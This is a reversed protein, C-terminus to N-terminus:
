PSAEIAMALEKRDDFPYKIGSIEQGQEHGKGLIVVTDGAEASAVAYVIAAKRDLIIASPTAVVVDAVMEDLIAAPSESRPNDSTFIAVDALEQLARGMLPRKTRDRDGGCGLVAILRHESDTKLTTLVRRVADPSHAFDVLARFPQGLNVSELRGPAGQLHRLNSAISLPDLGSQVALAIAMIANDLNHDGILPLFGEILIGGAGRLSIEFGGSVENHSLYYWDAKSNSRSVTSIPIQSIELLRVGYPDDINVYGIDAYETTFLKAKAAFYNAMTGHFDLHDQTLNTFAAISFHSGAMRSQELAHSSVEAVLHTVHREAMTAMISQLETAEPTTFTTPYHDLGIDVGLTGIFGAERKELQWLQYLLSSTTTKGNTGTIGVSVLSRLPFDNVWSAIDGARRKPDAIVMMPLKPFEMGAGELDTVVAVAGLEAAKAIFKAGHVKGGPLALFLDGPQVLASNSTVGSIPVQPVLDVSGLFKALDAFNKSQIELPRM